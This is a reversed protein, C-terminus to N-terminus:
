PFLSLVQSGLDLRACAASKSFSYLAVALSSFVTAGTLFIVPGALCFGPGLFAGAAAVLFAASTFFAAAAALGAPRAPRRPRGLFCYPSYDLTGPYVILNVRIQVIFLYKQLPHRAISPKSIKVLLVGRTLM